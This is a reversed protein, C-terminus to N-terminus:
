ARIKGTQACCAVGHKSSSFATLRRQAHEVESRCAVEGLFSRAINVKRPQTAQRCAAAPLVGLGSRKMARIHGMPAAPPWIPRLVSANGYRRPRPTGLVLRANRRLGRVNARPWRANSGPLRANLWPLRAKLRLLRAHFRPVRAKLRPLRAHVRPLRAHVRPLRIQFWPLRIQVRALRIQLRLLRIQGATSPNPVATSPLVPGTHRGDGRKSRHPPAAPHCRADARARHGRDCAPM